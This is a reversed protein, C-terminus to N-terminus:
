RINKGRALSWNIQSHKLIDKELHYWQKVAQLENRIASQPNRIAEALAKPLIFYAIRLGCYAM